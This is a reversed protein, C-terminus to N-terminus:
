NGWFTLEDFNATGGGNIASVFVLRIYQYKEAGDQLEETFTYDSNGDFADIKTWGKSSADAEWAALDGADIDVTTAGLTIDNTGWFQMNAPSRDGCCGSRQDLKFQTLNVPVSMDFSMVFPYSDEATDCSHWFAGTSGDLLRDYSSGYCGDSADFDLRLPAIVSKDLLYGRPFNYGSPIASFLEFSTTTPRYTSAVEFEGNLVYDEIITQNTDNPVDITQEVGGSNTYTIVTSVVGDNPASWDIVVNDQSANMGSIGRNLLSAQYNSGYSTALVERKISQNGNNDKLFVDFNYEGQEIDLIFSTIDQGSNERIVDFEHDISGDKSQLVGKSIKPDANIVVNFKLKNFGHEILVTDPTGIYLIEGDEIFESYTDVNSECALFSLSLIVIIFTLYSLHKKM